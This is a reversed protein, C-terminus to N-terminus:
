WVQLRHPWRLKYTTLTPDKGSLLGAGFANAAPFITKPHYEIGKLSSLLAILYLGNQRGRFPSQIKRKTSVWRQFRQAIILLFSVSVTNCLYFRDCIHRTM